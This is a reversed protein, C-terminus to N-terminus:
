RVNRIRHRKFVDFSTCKIFHNANERFKLEKKSIKVGLKNSKLFIGVRKKGPLESRATLQLSLGAIKNLGKNVSSGRMYFGTLQNASCILPSTQM